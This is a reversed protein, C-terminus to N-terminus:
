IDKVPSMLVLNGLWTESFVNWKQSEGNINRLIVKSLDEEHKKIEEKSSPVFAIQTSAGGMDM